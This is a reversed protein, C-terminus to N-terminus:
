NANNEDDHILDLAEQVRTTLLDETKILDLIEEIGLVEFDILMGTVKPSM